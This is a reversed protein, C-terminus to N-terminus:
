DYIMRFVCVHARRDGYLGLGGAFTILVRFGLCGGEVEHRVLRRVMKPRRCFVALYHVWVSNTHTRAYEYLMFMYIYIYIHIYLTCLVSTACLEYCAKPRAICLYPAWLYKKKDHTAQAPTSARHRRKRARIRRNPGVAPGCFTWPTTPHTHTHSYIRADIHSSAM